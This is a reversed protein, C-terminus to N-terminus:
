IARMKVEVYFVVSYFLIINMRNNTKESMSLKMM